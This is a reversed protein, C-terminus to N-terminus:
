EKNRIWRGNEMLNSEKSYSIKDRVSIGDWRRGTDTFYSFENWDIDLYPEGSIGLEKYRYKSWIDRNDYKSLPSGHMCITTVPVISRLKGLNEKFLEYAKDILADKSFQKMAANINKMENNKLKENNIKFQRYALDMDEYHYGIEHRLDSIQKIIKEDFSESVIRFYYSGKLGLENELRATTLANHPRRDM